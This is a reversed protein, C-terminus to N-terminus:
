ARRMGHAVSRGMQRLPHLIRMLPRLRPPYAQLHRRDPLLWWLFLRARGIPGDVLRLSRQVNTGPEARVDHLLDDALRGVLPALGSGRLAQPVAAPLETGLLEAVVGLTVLLARRAGAAGARRLLDPGDVSALPLHALDALWGLTGLGHKAAHFTLLVLQDELGFTLVSGTELEVRQARAFLGEMPLDLARNWGALAWHLELPVGADDSLELHYTASHPPADPQRDRFGMAELARRARKLHAPRVVLDLDASARLTVDGYALAALAPGKYALAPAGASELARCVEVLRRAMHRARLSQLERRVPDVVAGDPGALRALQPWLGHHAAREVADRWADPPAAAAAAGGLRGAALAVLLPM